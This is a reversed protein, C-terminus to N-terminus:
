TAGDAAPSVPAVHRDSHARLHQVLLPKEVARTSASSGLDSAGMAVTESGEPAYNMEAVREM